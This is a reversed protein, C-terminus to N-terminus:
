TGCWGYNSQKRIEQRMQAILVIAEERGWGLVETLLLMGFGELSQDLATQFFFGAQKLNEDKPWLHLPAKIKKEVVDVFGAEEMYQKMQSGQSISFPRGMKEGGEYFLRAWRNFIHGDPLQVHDSEIKVDMELDQLWGGPKIHAFAKRYLAPWDPVSGYLARLHVFDFNDQPWTWDLLFDDIEFKVNPPTWTPQIPSIDTGVVTTKPYQDGVDIAWIGTGTGVDLISADERVPALFLKGELLLTLAHHTLDLGGNQQEDNPAWYDTTATSQYTRGHLRRYELISDTLSATSSDISGIASDADDFTDPDEPPDAAEIPPSQTASKPSPAKPSPAKTPSQAAPPSSTSAM